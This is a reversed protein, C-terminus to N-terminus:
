WNYELKVVPLNSYTAIVEAINGPDYSSQWSLLFVSGIQRLHPPILITPIDDFCDGDPM